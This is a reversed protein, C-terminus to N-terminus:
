RVPRVPVDGPQLKAAPHVPQRTDIDGGSLGVAATLVALGVLLAMYALRFAQPGSIRPRRSAGQWRVVSPGSVVEFPVDTFGKRMASVYVEV